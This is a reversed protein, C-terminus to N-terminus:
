LIKKIMTKCYLILIKKINFVDIRRLLPLCRISDVISTNHFLDGVHIVRRTEVDRRLYDVYFHSVPDTTSEKKVIDLLDSYFQEAAFIKQKLVEYTNRKNSINIDSHRFSFLIDSSFVIGNDALYIATADDSYWALPYNVFGNISNLKKRNFIYFPIGSGVMERMFVFEIQTTYEKLLGAIYIINGADDIYQVRPRYVGVDPYKVVLKDMKELYQPHYVDDDSALIIYEGKAYELSYNWQAVLNKGGINHENVYYRVRDDDYSRVISGLDEPSADNVIILEFDAYTQNLISDIAEKFFRAKYAPLVFSYKM